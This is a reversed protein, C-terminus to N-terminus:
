IDLNIFYISGNSILYPDDDNEVFISDSSTNWRAIYTLQGTLSQSM